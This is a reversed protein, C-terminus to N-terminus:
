REGKGRLLVGVKIVCYYQNTTPTSHPCFAPSSCVAPVPSHLTVTVNDDRHTSELIDGGVNNRYM